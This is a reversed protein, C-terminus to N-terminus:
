APPSGEELSITREVRNFPSDVLNGDADLLELIFVNDGMPLGEVFYPVWDTLMFEHGNITARVKYGTESLDCNVLYFDLLIKKTDNGAYTGKPRSYFMNPGSLDAEESSADGVTFQRLDYAEPNKLSEHYSRSLFSLAVYHGAQLEQEFSPDYHATYPQNNLILHIHQGKDSNACNKIGADPTQAQLEYNTVEYSFQVNGVELKAFEEPENMELIADPFEPSDEVPSVLIEMEAQEAPETSTQDEGSQKKPTCTMFLTVMLLGALFKFKKM